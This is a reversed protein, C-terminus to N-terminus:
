RIRMIEDLRRHVIPLEDPLWERFGPSDFLLDDGPYTPVLYLPFREFIERDGRRRRAQVARRKEASRDLQALVSSLARFQAVTREDVLAPADAQSSGLTSRWVKRLARRFFERPGYARWKAAIGLNPPAAPHRWRPAGPDQRSATGAILGAYPDLILQEGGPNNEVLLTQTRHTLTLLVAPMIKAWLEEDYNKYATLFANREFLMGRNYIGLLESTAMSRHHVVAEPAPLVREGGSWLRWGLDVDELYAFYSEDFGGASLFSSRRILMNGACAFLLESGAAPLEVEGLPRGFDKQFSHGDFTLLGSAFDLHEGPWDVILGAVAAVDPAAAALADVLAALWEPRPRTDNNLFAIADGDSAEAVWNCAASFGVNAPSEVLRVGPYHRRVWAATGDSSGNDFVVVQWEVGCDLQEGLAALCIELHARGNWTPVAVSVKRIRSM